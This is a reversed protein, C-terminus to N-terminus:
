GYTRTTWPCPPGSPRLEIGAARLGSVVALAGVGCLIGIHFASLGLRVYLEHLLDDPLPLPAVTELPGPRSWNEPDQLAVEFRHLVEVVEADGYLDRLLQRSRGSGWRGPPRVTVGAEHLMERVLSSSVDLHAGVDRLSLGAEVYLRAADDVIEGRSRSLKPRFTGRRKAFGCERLRKRLYEDSVGFWATLERVSLGRRVYLEELAERTVEARENRPRREHRSRRPIGALALERIVRKHSMGLEAGVERTTLRQEVYLTRLREADARGDPRGIGCEALWRAATGSAVGFRDALQAQTMGGAVLVSLQDRSLPCPLSADRRSVGASALAESVRQRSVGLEHAIQRETCGEEYLRAVDAPDPPAQNAWGAFAWKAPRGGAPV